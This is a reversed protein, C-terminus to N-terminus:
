EKSAEFLEALTTNFNVFGFGYVNILHWMKGATRIKLNKTVLKQRIKFWVCPKGNNDTTEYPTVEFSAKDKMLQLGIELSILESKSCSAILARFDEKSCQHKFFAEADIDMKKVEPGLANQESARSKIIEDVISPKGDNSENLM